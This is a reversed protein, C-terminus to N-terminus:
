TSKGLASDQEDTQYSTIQVTIPIPLGLDVELCVELVDVDESVTYESTTFAM